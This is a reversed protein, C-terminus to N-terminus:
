NQMLKKYERTFKAKLVGKKSKGNDDNEWLKEKFVNVFDEDGNFIQIYPEKLVVDIALESEKYSHFEPINQIFIKREENEDLKSLILEFLKITQSFKMFPQIRKKDLEIENQEIDFISKEYINNDYFKNILDTDKVLEYYSDNKCYVNYYHILPISENFFYANDNLSKGIIYNEFNKKKLLKDTIEKSLACKIEHESIFNIVEESPKGIENCIEIYKDILSDDNNLMDHIKVTVSLIHYKITKIFSIANEVDDLELISSINNLIEEQQNNNLSDFKCIDFDILSFLKEITNKETVRNGKDDGFLVAKFFNYLNECTYKKNNCYHAIMVIKDDDIRSFDIAFYVDEPSLIDLEKESVFDFPAEFLDPIQGVKGNSILIKRLRIFLEPEKQNIGTALEVIKESIWENDFNFGDFNNLRLRSYIASNYLNNEELLQILEIDTLLPTILDDIKKLNEYTMKKYDVTQIYDIITQVSTEQFKSYIIEFVFDDYIKQKLCLNNLNTEIEIFSALNPIKKICEVLLGKEKDSFDIEELYKFYDKYNESTLMSFNLTNFIDITNKCNKIVSIPSLPLMTNIFIHTFKGIENPFYKLITFRYNNIFNNNKVVKFREIIIDAFLVIILNRNQNDTKVIEYDCIQSITYTIGEIDDINSVIFQKISETMNKNDCRLAISFIKESLLVVSGFRQEYEVVENCAEKIVQGNREELVKNIIENCNENKIFSIDNKIIADYVTKEELTNIHANSPYNYFYMLYDNELDKNNLMRKFDEKFNTFTDTNGKSFDFFSFDLNQNSKYFYNNVIEAFKKEKQTLEQFIVPYQRQLYVVVACKKYTIAKPSKDRKSLSTYLLFTENLRDKIERVSLNEGQMIWYLQNLINTVKQEDFKQAELLKKVIQRVTEFHVPRIWVTYDFIKSYISLGAKYANEKKDEETELLLSEESKLSVIFIFKKKEEDSLLNIFRYLEKLLSTVIKADDSRDLDEIIILWKKKSKLKSTIEKFIEFTDTDSPEIKGQSDWLSFIFNDNKISLWILPIALFLFLENPIDINFLITHFGLNKLGFYFVLILLFAIGLFVKTWGWGSSSLSLKGYNKSLRQNIYKTFTKKNSGCAFQYLFSKTFSNIRSQDSIENNGDSGKEEDNKFDQIEQKVICDWLNIYIPKEFISKNEDYLIKTLSSKGSGYEGILAITSAGDKIAEKVATAKIKSDFIDEEPTGIPSNNFLIIEHEEKVEDIKKEEEM